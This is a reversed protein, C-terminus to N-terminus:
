STQSTVLLADNRLTRNTALLRHFTSIANRNRWATNTDFFLLVARSFICRSHFIHPFPTGGDPSNASIAEGYVPPTFSAPNSTHLTPPSRVLGRMGRQCDKNSALLISETSSHYRRILERKLASTSTGYNCCVEVTNIPPLCLLMRTLNNLSRRSPDTTLNIPFIRWCGRIVLHSFSRKVFLGCEHSCTSRGLGNKTTCRNVPTAWDRLTV